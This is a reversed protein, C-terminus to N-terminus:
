SGIASFQESLSDVIKTKTEILQAQSYPKAPVVGWIPGPWAADNKYRVIHHIHLQPVMNGLAAVNMKEANYIGNLVSSLYSSEWLFQRQDSESLQFIERVGEVRPVLICWPFNEDKCLLLRCLPFDGLVLCDQDLQPHLEFMSISEKKDHDKNLSRGSTFEM